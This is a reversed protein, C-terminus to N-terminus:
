SSATASPATSTGPISAPPLSPTAQVGGSTVAYSVVERIYADRASGPGSSTLVGPTFKSAAYAEIKAIDGQPFVQRLAAAWDKKPHGPHATLQQQFATTLESELQSLQAQSFSSSVIPAAASAVAGSHHHSSSCAALVAIMAVGAAAMIIRRHNM